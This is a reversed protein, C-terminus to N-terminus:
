GKSEHRLVGEVILYQALIYTLMILSGAFAFSTHFKNIALISDSAMFLLAGATVFWFSDLYTRGYRFIATMAMLMLVVSYVMVPITLPGLKPVLVVLLGTGALVVPFAYRLKQTPLLENSKDEWQLQRYAVIYLVHGLLFSVLGLIFFLEGREQGMLLIDGTWCFFMARILTGNRISTMSLYHGILVLMIMPKAVLQVEAWGRSVALLECISVVAFLILFLNYRKMSPPNFLVMFIAFGVTDM